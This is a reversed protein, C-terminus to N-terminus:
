DREIGVVSVGTNNKRLYVRLPRAWGSHHSSHTTIEALAYSGVGDSPGDFAASPIDLRREKTTIRSAIPEQTQKYNDFRHWQAQYSDAAPVGKLLRAAANDFLLANGEITFQDLPNVQNLWLRGVKDRRKMLTETLYAEARSDSLQGTKVIARVQDDSFAMVIKAGWFADEDTLNNFAPNPYEPKWKEPQFFDAEFNGLSPYHPYDV